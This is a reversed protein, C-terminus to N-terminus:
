RGSYAANCKDIAEHDFRLSTICTNYIELKEDQERRKKEEERRSKNEIAARAADKKEQERAAKIREDRVQGDYADLKFKCAEGLYQKQIIEISTLAAQQQFITSARSYALQYQKINDMFESCNASAQASVLLTVLIVLKKM